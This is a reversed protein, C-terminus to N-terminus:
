QKRATGGCCLLTLEFLKKNALARRIIEATVLSGRAALVRGREDTLDRPLRKGTLLCSGAKPLPQKEEQPATRTEEARIERVEASEQPPSAKRTKTAHARTKKNENVLVADQVGTVKETPLTRGDSLLLAGIKTGERVLDNVSGLLAGDAAYVRKGFPAPIGDAAPPLENGKLIAAEGCSLLASWPVSFEEEDEGFCELGRVRRLKADTRVNLIHGLRVGERTLLEKGILDSLREEMVVEAGREPAKKRGKRM